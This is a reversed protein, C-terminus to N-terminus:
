ITKKGTYFVAATSIFSPKLIPVTGIILEAELSLGNKEAFTFTNRKM